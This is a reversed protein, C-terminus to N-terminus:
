YPFLEYFSDKGLHSVFQVVLKNLRDPASITIWDDISGRHCFREAIFYRDNTDILEFRMEEMYDLLKHMNRMIKDQMYAPYDEPDFVDKATYITIYNKRVDVIFHGIDENKKLASIVTQKELETILPLEKKILFVQANPNEYVEFGDPINDLQGSKIKTSFFYKPKGTKTIGQYLYYVQDKRNTHQFTM